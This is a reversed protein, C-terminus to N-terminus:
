EELHKALGPLGMERARDAMLDLAGELESSFEDTLYRKM